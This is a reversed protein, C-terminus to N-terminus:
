AQEGGGQPGGEKPEDQKASADMFQSLVELHKLDTHLQERFKKHAQPNKLIALFKEEQTSALKAARGAIRAQVQSYFMHLRDLSLYWGFLLALLFAAILIMWWWWKLLGCCHLRNGIAPILLLVGVALGAAMQTQRYYENFLSDYESQTMLGKGIAYSPEYIHPDETMLEDRESYYRHDGFRIDGRTGASSSRRNFRRFLWDRWPLGSLVARQIPDIILGLALSVALFAFINNIIIQATMQFTSKAPAAKPAPAQNVQAAVDTRLNAVQTLLGGFFTKGSALRQTEEQLGKIRQTLGNIEPQYSEALVRNEAERAKEQAALLNTSQANLGTIQTQLSSSQSDLKASADQLIRSCSDFTAFLNAPDIKMEGPFGGSAQKEGALSPSTGGKSEEAKKLDRSGKVIYVPVNYCASLDVGGASQPLERTNANSEEPQTAAACLPASKGWESGWTTCSVAIKGYEEATTVAFTANVPPKAGIVEITRRGTAAQSEITLTGRLKGADAKFEGPKIGEVPKVKSTGWNQNPAGTIAVNVNQGQSGSDPTIDSPKKFTFTGTWTSKGATVTVSHRGTDGKLSAQLTARDVVEFAGRDLIADDFKVTPSAKRDDWNASKDATIVVYVSRGQISSSPTITLTTDKQQGQCEWCAGDTDLTCPPPYFFLALALAAIMGPVTVAALKSLNFFQQIFDM